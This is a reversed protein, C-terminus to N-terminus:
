AAKNKLLAGKKAADGELMENGGGGAGGNNGLILSKVQGRSQYLKDQIDVLRRLVFFLFVSAGTISANRENYFLDQKYECSIGMNQAPALTDYFPHLLADAVTAFYGIDVVLLAYVTYQVPQAHWLSAVWSNVRGRIENSPMPMCLLTM